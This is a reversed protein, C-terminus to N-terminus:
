MKCPMLKQPEASNLLHGTTDVFIYLVLNYICLFLYGVQDLAWLFLLKRSFLTFTFSQVTTYVLKDNIRNFGTQSVCKEGNQDVNYYNIELDPIGM